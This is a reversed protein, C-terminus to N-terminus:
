QADSKILPRVEIKRFFIEAGESQFIIKGKTLSSKTGINVVYGNVINTISDGDCIVEMRNWEGAPKEVDRSGRFGLVDKWGPDRGWWNYRGLQPHRGQGGERLLASPRPRRADRLHPETKGTRRGHHLRRLGRRHDPMGAVGDLQGRGRRRARRLPAPDGLRPREAEAIRLDARGVEMGRGPSLRSVRGQTTLGGFEEGSIRIMGDHVTFVKAPDDYKHEHLYTYFGTLDKGNFQFIPEGTRIRPVERAFSPIEQAPGDAALAAVALGLGAVICRMRIAVITVADRPAGCSALCRTDRDIASATSGAAKLAASRSSRPWSKEDPCGISLVMGQGGEIQEPPTVGLRDNPIGIQM